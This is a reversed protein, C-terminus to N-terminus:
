AMNQISDKDETRKAVQYVFFALCYNTVADCLIWLKIGWRHHHKNPLYRLLQTHNKTGVLSEDVTLQQHTTYYHRFVTNAHDVLPRFKACTDYGPKGPVALNKNDVM